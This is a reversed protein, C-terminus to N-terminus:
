RGSAAVSKVLAGIAKHRALAHACHNELPQGIRQCIAIVNVADNTANADVLVARGVADGRGAGLRLFTQFAFNIVAEVDIRLLNRQDFRVTRASNQAIGDFATRQFIGELMVRIFLLVTRQAADFGINTM